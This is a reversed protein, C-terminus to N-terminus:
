ENPIKEFYKRLKRIKIGVTNRHIGLLDAIESNNLGDMLWRCIQKSEQDELNEIVEQVDIRLNQDDSKTTKLNDYDDCDRLHSIKEFNHNLKKPRNSEKALYRFERKYIIWMKSDIFEGPTKASSDFTPVMELFNAIIRHYCDERDHRMLNFKKRIYNCLKRSKEQVMEWLYGSSFDYTNKNDKTM